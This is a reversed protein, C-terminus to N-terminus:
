AKGPRGPAFFKEVTASSPPRTLLSVVILAATSCGIITAVPMMGAFLYERDAGFGSERFLYLWVAAAVVVCAYAGAKTVRRWYLAAFVLPFLSAFGSFCWVALPFVGTKRWTVAIFYTV